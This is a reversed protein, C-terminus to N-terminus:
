RRSGDVPELPGDRRTTRLRRGPPEGRTSSMSWASGRVAISRPARWRLRDIQLAVRETRGVVFRFRRRQGRERGAPLGTPTLILSGQSPLHPAGTGRGGTTAGISDLSGDAARGFASGPEREADNTQVYVVGASMAENIM